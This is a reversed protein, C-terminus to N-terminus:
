RNPQRMPPGIEDYYRKRLTENVINEIMLFREWASRREALTASNAAAEAELADVRKRVDLLDKRYMFLMSGVSTLLLSFLTIILWDRWTLREPLSPPEAM